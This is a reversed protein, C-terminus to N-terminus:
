PILHLWIWITGVSSATAALVATANVRKSVGFMNAFLFANVGPPMAGTLVASRFQGESLGLAGGMVWTIAPHLVLSVLVIWVVVRMEGEPRYAVLIGGLGFLAAPLAAAAVLDIADRAPGTLDIGSLNTAIGLAIGIVLPNTAMSKAVGVMPGVIGRGGSRAIEMATVGVLYCIPAHLAVIAFNPGLAEAGFARETIPLGLLVSNSFLTAFGIAVSDEWPRGFLFRAGLMGAAFGSLAGTYFSVLLKPDFNAGLELTSLARFLLVPVAFNQAFKMLGQVAGDTLGLKWRALYGYGVVLFVPLIVELLASM